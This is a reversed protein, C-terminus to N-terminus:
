KWFSSAVAIGIACGLVVVIATLIEDRHRLLRV